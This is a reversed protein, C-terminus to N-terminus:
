TKLFAEATDSILVPSLQWIDERRWTSFDGSRGSFVEVKRVM